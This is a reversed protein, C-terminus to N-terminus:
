TRLHGSWSPHLSSVLMGIVIYAVQDVVLLGTTSHSPHGVLNDPAAPPYLMNSAMVAFVATFIRETTNQAVLPDLYAEPANQRSSKLIIRGFDTASTTATIDVVNAEHLQQEFVSWFAPRPDDILTSSQM